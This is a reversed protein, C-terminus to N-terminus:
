GGIYAFAAWGTPDAFSRGHSDELLVTELWAEVTERPLWGNNRDVLAEFLDREDGNTTDRLGPSGRVSIVLYRHCPV